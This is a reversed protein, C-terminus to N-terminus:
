GYILETNIIKEDVLYFGKMEIVGKTNLSIILYLAEPYNAQQLDTKSPEAPADPHSHFIAFLTENKNRMQKMADIQSAPNMEFLHQKDQAINEVSYVTTPLGNIAGILGCTETQPNHQALTLLKIAINRPLSISKM